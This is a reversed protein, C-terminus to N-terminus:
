ARRDSRERVFGLCALNYIQGKSVFGYNFSAPVSKNTHKSFSPVFGLNYIQGGQCLDMILPPPFRNTLTNPLQPDKEFCDWVIGFLGLCDSVM